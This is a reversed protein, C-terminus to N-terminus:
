GERTLATGIHVVALVAATAPFYASANDTQVAVLGTLVAWWAWFAGLGGWALATGETTWLRFVLVGCTLVLLVAGYTEIPLLSRALDYAPASARQDGGVLWVLGIALDALLLTAVTVPDVWRRINAPVVHPM